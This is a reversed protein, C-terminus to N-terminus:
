RQVYAKGFRSNKKVFVKDILFVTFLAFLNTRRGKVNGLTKAVM